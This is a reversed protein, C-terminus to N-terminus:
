LWSSQNVEQDNVIWDNQGYWLSADNNIGSLFRTDSLLDLTQLDFTFSTSSHFSSSPLPSTLPAAILTSPDDQQHSNSSSSALSQEKRKSESIISSLGSVASACMQGSNCRQVIQQRLISVINEISTMVIGRECNPLTLREVSNGPLFSREQGYTKSLKNLFLCAFILMVQTYITQGYIRAPDQQYYALISHASNVARAGMLIRSQREDTSQLLISPMTQYAFSERHEVRENWDLSIVEDEEDQILLPSVGPPARFAHADIFLRLMDADHQVEAHNGIPGSPHEKQSWRKLWRDLLATFRPVQELVQLRKLRQQVDVGFDDVVDHAIVWLEVQSILREDEVNALRCGALWAAANRVAAHQRTMPPRGFPIAAQHDAVYVLYYLKAEEYANREEECYTMMSEDIPMSVACRASCTQESRTEMWAKGAKMDSCKKYADQMGRETALRVASATLIWSLDRLWWSAVVLARVDDMSQHRVFSRQASVRIFENYLSSYLRSSSTSSSSSKGITGDNAIVQNYHLSAVTCVALLLLPSKRISSVSEKLRITSNRKSLPCHQRAVISYVHSDLRDLYLDILTCAQNLTILGQDIIDAQRSRDVRLHSTSSIPEALQRLHEGPASAPDALEEDAWQEKILIANDGVSAADALLGLNGDPSGSTASEDRRRKFNKSTRGEKSEELVHKSVNSEESMVLQLNQLAQQSSGAELASVIADLRKEVSAKWSNDSQRDDLISQLSKTVKCELKNKNCRTCPPNGDSPLNCRVKHRRCEDCSTVRRSITAVFSGGAENATRSTKYRASM